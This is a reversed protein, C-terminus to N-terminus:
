AIISVEGQTTSGPGNDDHARDRVWRRLREAMEGASQFRNDPAKQLAKEVIEMLGDPVERSTRTEDALMCLVTQENANVRNVPPEGSLFFHLVRGLSYIDSRGDLATEGRVQEPSAYELTVLVEDTALPIGIRTGEGLRQAIDYDTVATEERTMLLNGPKIDGHVIRQGHIYELVEAASAMLVAALLPDGVEKFRQEVAPVKRGGAEVLDVEVFDTIIWPHSSEPDADRFKPIRRHNLSGSIDAENAIKLSALHDTAPNRVKAFVPEGTEVDHALMASMFQNDAVVREVAYREPLVVELSRIARNM